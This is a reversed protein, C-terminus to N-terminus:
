TIIILNNNINNVIISHMFAKKKNIQTTLIRPFKNNYKYKSHKPSPIKLQKHMTM